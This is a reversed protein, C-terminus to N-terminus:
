RYTSPWSRGMSGWFPISALSPMASATRRLPTRTSASVSRRCSPTGSSRWTMGREAHRATASRGLIDNFGGCAGCTFKHQQSVESMYFAPKEGAKGVADAVADLDIVVDGDPESDLATRLHECYERVFRRQANSLFDHGEALV